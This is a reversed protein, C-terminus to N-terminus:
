ARQPTYIMAFTVSTGKSKPRAPFTATRVLKDVCSVTGDAAIGLKLMPIGNGKLTGCAGIQPALALVPKDVVEPKYLAPTQSVPKLSAFTRGDTSSTTEAGAVSALTSVLLVLALKM